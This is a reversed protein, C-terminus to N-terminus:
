LFNESRLITRKVAGVETVVRLKSRTGTSTASDSNVYISSSKKRNKKESEAGLKKERAMM